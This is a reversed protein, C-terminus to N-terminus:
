GACSRSRNMACKPPRMPRQTVSSFTRSPTESTSPAASARSSTSRRPSSSPATSTPSCRTGSCSGACPRLEQPRHGLGPLGHRPQLLLLRLRLVDPGRGPQLRHAAHPSAYYVRAYRLVYVTHVCLWGVAVAGVGVLADLVQATRRQGSRRRPPHRRGRSQRPGVLSSSSTTGRPTATAVRRGEGAHLPRRTRPRARATAGRLRPRRRRFRHPRPDALEGAAGLPVFLGVLVGVVCPSPSADASPPCRRLSGGRAGVLSSAPQHHAPPRSPAPDPYTVCEAGSSPRGRVGRARPDGGHGVRGASTAAEGDDVVRDLDVVEDCRLLEHGLGRGPVAPLVRRPDLRGLLLGALLLAALGHTGPESTTAESPPSPVTRATAEASTPVSTARPRSGPPM